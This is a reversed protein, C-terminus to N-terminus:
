RQYVRSSVSTQLTMSASENPNDSRYEAEIFITVIPQSDNAYTGYGIPAFPDSIPSTYVIFRKIDIRRGSLPVWSPTTGEEFMALCGTTVNLGSCAADAASAFSFATLEDDGNVLDLRNRQYALPNPSYSVARNRTQRVIFETMYRLEEGLTEANAVRRHLHTFNISIAAIVVSATSFIVIVVLMEVITFGSRRFGLCTKIRRLWNDGIMCNKLRM